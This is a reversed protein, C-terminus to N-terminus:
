NKGREDRLDFKFETENFQLVHETIDEKAHFIATLPCLYAIYHERQETRKKSGYNFSAKM